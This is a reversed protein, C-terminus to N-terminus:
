HPNNPMSIEIRPDYFLKCMTSHKSLLWDGQPIIMVVALEEQGIVRLTRGKLHSGPEGYIAGGLFGFV